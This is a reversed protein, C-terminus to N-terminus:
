DSHRHMAACGKGRKLMIRNALFAFPFAAVFGGAISGWLLPEALGADMAGALLAVFLNDIVEMITISVTDAAVAIPVVATFALGARLAPPSV